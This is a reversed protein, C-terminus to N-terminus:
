SGGVRRGTSMEFFERLSLPGVRVSFYRGALDSSAERELM